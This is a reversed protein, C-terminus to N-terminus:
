KVILRKVLILEFNTKKLLSVLVLVLNYKKNRLLIKETIKIYISVNKASAKLNKFIHSWKSKM